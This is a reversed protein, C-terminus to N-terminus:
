TLMSRVGCHICIDFRALIAAIYENKNRWYYTIYRYNAALKRKIEM